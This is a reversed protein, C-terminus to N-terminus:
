QRAAGEHECCKTDVYRVFSPTMAWDGTSVTCDSKGSSRSVRGASMCAQSTPHQEDMHNGNMRQRKAHMHILRPVM